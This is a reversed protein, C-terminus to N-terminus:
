YPERIVLLPEGGVPPVSKNFRFFHFLNLIVISL